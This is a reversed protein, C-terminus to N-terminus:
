FALFWLTRTRGRSACWRICTAHTSRADISVRHECWRNEECSASEALSIKDAAQLVVHVGVRWRGVEVEDLCHLQRWRLRLLDIDDTTRHLHTTNTHLVLTDHHHM